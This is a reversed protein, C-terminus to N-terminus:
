NELSIALSGHDPLHNWPLWVRHFRCNKPNQQPRQSDRLEHRFPQNSFSLFRAVFWEKTYQPWQTLGWLASM